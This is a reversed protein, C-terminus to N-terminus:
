SILTIQETSFQICFYIKRNFCNIGSIHTRFPFPSSFAKFNILCSFSFFSAGGLSRELCLVLTGLVALLQIPILLGIHGSVTTWQDRGLGSELIPTLSKGKRQHLHQCRVSVQLCKMVEEQHGLGGPVCQLPQLVYVSTDWSRASRCAMYTTLEPSSDSLNPMTTREPFSHQNKPRATQMAWSETSPLPLATEHLCPAQLAPKVSDGRLTKTWSRAELHPKQALGCMLSDSSRPHWHPLLRHHM